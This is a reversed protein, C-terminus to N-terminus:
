RAKSRSSAQGGSGRKRLVDEYVERTRELMNTLSFRTGVRKRACAGIRATEAPDDVMGRLATTLSPLDQFPVIAGLDGVAEINAPVDSVIPACGNAMAELLAFSFGERESVLVFIDAIAM